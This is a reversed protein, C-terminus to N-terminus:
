RVYEPLNQMIKRHLEYEYRDTNMVADAAEFLAMAREKLTAMKEVESAKEM